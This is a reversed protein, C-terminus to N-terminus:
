NQNENRNTELRDRRSGNIFKSYAADMALKKTRYKKDKSAKVFEDYLAPVQALLKFIVLLLSVVDM